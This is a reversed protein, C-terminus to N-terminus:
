LHIVEKLSLAYPEGVFQPVKNNVDNITIYLLFRNSRPRNGSSKNAKAPVTCIFVLEILDIKLEDLDYNSKLMLSNAQLEFYRNIQTENLENSRFSLQIQDTSGIFPLTFLLSNAKTDENFEIANSKMAGPKVDCPNYASKADAALATLCLLLITLAM